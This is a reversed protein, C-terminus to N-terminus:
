GKDLPVRDASGRTSEINHRTGNQEDRWKIWRPDKTPEWGERFMTHITKLQNSTYGAMKSFRKCGYQTNSKYLNYLLEACLWVEQNALRSEWAKGHLESERLSKRIKAKSEDSLKPTGHDKEVGIYEGGRFDEKWNPDEEPIWGERFREVLKKLGDPSKGVVTGLRQRGCEGEKLWIEYYDQAFPWVEKRTRSGRGGSWPKKSLKDQFVRVGKQLNPLNKKRFEEDQWSSKMRAIHNARYEPRDWFSKQTESDLGYGGIRINWGINAAPRYHKEMEFCEEQTGVFLLDVKLAKGHKRIVNQLTIGKNNCEQALRTHQNCRIVLSRGTVGVYGETMKDVQSDLHIWYVLYADSNVM